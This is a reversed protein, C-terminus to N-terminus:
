LIRVRKSCAKCQIRVKCANSIKVINMLSSSINDFDTKFQYFKRNKKFKIKESYNKFPLSTSKKSASM